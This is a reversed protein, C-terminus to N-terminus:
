TNKAAEGGCAPAPHVGAPHGGVRAPLKGTM